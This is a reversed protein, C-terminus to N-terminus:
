ARAKARAIRLNSLVIHVLVNGPVEDAPIISTQFEDGFEMIADFADGFNTFEFAAELPADAAFVVNDAFGALSYVAVVHTTTPALHNSAPM